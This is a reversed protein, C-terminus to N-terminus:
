HSAFEGLYFDSVEYSPYLLLFGFREDISLAMKLITLLDDPTVFTFAFYGRFITALAPASFPFESLRPYGPGREKWEKSPCGGM